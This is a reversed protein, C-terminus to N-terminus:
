AVLNSAREVTEGIRNRVEVEVRVPIGRRVIRYMRNCHEPTVAVIAPGALDGARANSKQSTVAEVAVACSVLATGTIRVDVVSSSRSVQRPFAPHSIV